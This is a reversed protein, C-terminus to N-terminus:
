IDKLNITKNGLVDEEITYYYEKQKRNEITGAQLIDELFIIKYKNEEHLTIEYDYKSDFIKNIYKDKFKKITTYQKQKCSDSLMNYAEEINRDNCYDIFRSIFDKNEQIDETKKKEKEREGQTAELEKIIEKKQSITYQNLSQIIFIILAIGGIIEFLLRGYSVFFLKIKRKIKEM